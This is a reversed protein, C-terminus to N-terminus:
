GKKKDNEFVGEYKDGDDYFYIGYGNKKDNKFEGEYKDGNSLIIEAKGDM